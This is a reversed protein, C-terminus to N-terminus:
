SCSLSRWLMRGPRVPVDCGYPNLPLEAPYTGAVPVLRANGTGPLVITNSVEPDVELRGVYANAQYVDFVCSVPVAKEGGDETPYMGTLTAKLITEEALAASMLTFTLLLILVACFLKKCLMEM